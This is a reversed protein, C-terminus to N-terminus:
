FIERSDNNIDPQKLNENIILSIFSIRITTEKKKQGERRNQKMMKLSYKFYIECKASNYMKISIQETGDIELLVILTIVRSKNVGIRIRITVTDNLLGNLFLVILKIKKM